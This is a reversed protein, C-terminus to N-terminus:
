LSLGSGDTLDPSAITYNDEGLWEDGFGKASEYDIMEAFTSGDKLMIKYPYKDM